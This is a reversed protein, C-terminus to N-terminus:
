GILRRGEALREDYTQELAENVGRCGAVVRETWNLYERRREVSWGAPPAHTVDTVNCIKDSIKILKARETLQPAHEVQRRKREPSRLNKDDTMEVVLRAVEPGFEAELEALTTETDEITDHLVAAQLVQVDTVGGIRALVEAVAIPHNIYPSADEDKRRQYSHKRAAFRLAALLETTDNRM